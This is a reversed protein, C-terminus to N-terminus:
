RGDGCGIDLVCDRGAQVDALRMLEELMEEPCHVLPCVTGAHTGWGSHQDYDDVSAQSDLAQAANVAIWSDKYGGPEGATVISRPLPAACSAVPTACAM